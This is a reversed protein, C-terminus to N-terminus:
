FFPSLLSESAPLPFLLEINTYSSPAPSITGPYYYDQPNAKVREGYASMVDVARGTRVLDFWRKGEFSLEVRRERLIADRLESQSAATTPALGARARVQNLYDAAQATNNSENLAEALLLLTESYRYVPWNTGTLLHLSHPQLLKTCYPIVRGDNLEITAISAALREDGDEYLAILDPTPINFGEGETLAQPNSTNTLDGVQEASLPYPLWEYIFSSAFGDTGEQYQVEFVSESNNPNGVDFAGAYDAILAYEGSNVVSQLANAAESWQERVMFVNGLLTNAAGSTARGPEMESKSGLLSAADQADSIIQAYVDDVSSLPLATEERTTAPILHMPIEGFSQVLNFYCLARLFHAEGRIREKSAANFDVGDIFALIQNARAIVQYNEIYITTSIANAPINLFDAIEEQAVLARFDPNFAYHTNDSRMEGLAWMGNDGDYLPRLAAYTGNIAQQFDSETQFFTGSSLSVESPLELFDESCATLM